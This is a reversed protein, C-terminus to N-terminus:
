RFIEAMEAPLREVFIILFHHFNILDLFNSWAEVRNVEDFAGRDFVWFVTDNHHSSISRQFYFAGVRFLTTFYSFLQGKSCVLAFFHPMGVANSWHKLKDKNKKMWNMRLM